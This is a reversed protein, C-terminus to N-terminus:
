LITTTKAMCRCSDGAPTNTSVYIDRVRRGGREGDWGEPNDWHGIERM